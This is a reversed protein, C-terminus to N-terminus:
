LAAHVEPTREGPWLAVFGVFMVSAFLAAISFFSMEKELIEICELFNPRIKWLILLLIALVVIVRIVIDVWIDGGFWIRSADIGCVVTIALLYFGLAIKYLSM